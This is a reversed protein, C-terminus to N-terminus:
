IAIEKENMGPPFEQSTPTSSHDTPDSEKRRSRLGASFGTQEQKVFEYKKKM